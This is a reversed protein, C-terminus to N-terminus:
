VSCVSEDPFVGAFARHVRPDLLYFEVRMRESLYAVDESERFRTLAAFACSATVKPSVLNVGSGLAPIAVSDIHNTRHALHLVNLYARILLDNDPDSIESVWPTCVHIVFKFKGEERFSSTITAEGVSLGNPHQRRCAQVVQRNVGTLLDVSGGCEAHVALEVNKRGAFRWHARNRPGQLGRNASVCVADVCAIAINGRKVVTCPGVRM